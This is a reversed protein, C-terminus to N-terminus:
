NKCFYSIDFGVFHLFVIWYCNFYCRFFLQWKLPVSKHIFDLFKWPVSLEPIDLTNCPSHDIVEELDYFSLNSFKNHTTTIEFLWKYNNFFPFSLFEQKQCHIQFIKIPNKASVNLWVFTVLLHIPIEVQRHRLKRMQPIAPGLPYPYRMELGHNRPSVSFSDWRYTQSWLQIAIALSFTPLVHNM